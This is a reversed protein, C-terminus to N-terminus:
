GINPPPSALGSETRLSLPGTQAFTNSCTWSATSSLLQTPPYGRPHVGAHSLLVLPPHQQARQRRRLLRHGAHIGGTGQRCAAADGELRPTPCRSGSTSAATRSTWSLQPCTSAGPGRAHRRAARPLRRPLHRDAGELRRHRLYESIVLQTFSSPSLMPPRMPWSSNRESPTPALAWGVRFGPALTKSFTGLYIVGDEDVSRMAQPAAISTSCATPTTRSCWSTTTRPRDGADRAASALQPHRRGPQPVDPDHLPVQHAARPRAAAAIAERLAEPM